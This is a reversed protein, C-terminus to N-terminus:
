KGLKLGEPIPESYNWEAIYSGLGDSDDKLVITGDIFQEITLQPYATIIEEYM